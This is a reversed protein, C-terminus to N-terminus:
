RFRYGGFVRRNGKEMVIGGFGLFCERFEWSRRRGVRFILEEEIRRDRM